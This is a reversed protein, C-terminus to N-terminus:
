PSPAITLDDFATVSDAKTWLGVKGAEGFTSDQVKFLETDNLYVTMLDGEVRVSLASWAGVPVEADVGYTRGQAVLPLDTREGNEVKYLVVNGELANARAIYYNNENRYRWVLGAAQDTAGSIPRFRVSLDLDAASVDEYIALPFQNNGPSDSVQTLVKTGSPAEPDEQIEWLGEAGGGTVATTFGAPPEGPPMQEFDLLTTQAAAVSASVLLTLALCAGGDWRVDILQM